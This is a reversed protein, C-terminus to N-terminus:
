DHYKERFYGRTYNIFEESDKLLGNLEYVRDIADEVVKMVGKMQQFILYGENVLCFLWGDGAAYLKLIELPKIKGLDAFAKIDFKGIFHSINKCSYFYEVVVDRRFRKGPYKVSVHVSYDNILTIVVKHPNVYVGNNTVLFELIRRELPKMLNNNHIEVCNVM